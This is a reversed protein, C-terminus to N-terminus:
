IGDEHEMILFSVYRHHIQGMSLIMACLLSVQMM